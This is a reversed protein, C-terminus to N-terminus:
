KGKRRCIEVVRKATAEDMMGIHCEKTSIGLQQALWRYGRGRATKPTLGSIEARRRWLPDFAAHADERARRTAAGAPTGVASLNPHTGCYAGCRCQWLWKGALDPRHRYIEAGSVLSVSGPACGEGCAPAIKALAKATFDRPDVLYETM